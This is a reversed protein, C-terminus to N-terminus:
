DVCGHQTRGILGSELRFLIVYKLGRVRAPHSTTPMTGPLPYPSKLGRVRAPHSMGDIIVFRQCVCSKLGRVRAPHSVCIKRCVWILISAIEIWAGTSPAVKNPLFKGDKEWIEIWAGTSPAVYCAPFSFARELYKLGRVRAPHSQGDLM